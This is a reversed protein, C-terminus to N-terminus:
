ASQKAAASALMSCHRVTCRRDPLELFSSFSILILQSFHSCLPRRLAFITSLAHVIHSAISDAMAQYVAPLTSTCGTVPQEYAPLLKTPKTPNRVVADFDISPMLSAAPASGPISPKGFRKM